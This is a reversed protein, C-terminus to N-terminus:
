RSWVQFGYNIEQGVGTIGSGTLAYMQGSPINTLSAYLQFGAAGDPSSIYIEKCKVDFAMSDEHSNLTIYHKGEYLNQSRDAFHVRIGTDPLSGSAIVTVTKTVYPFEIKMQQGSSLTSGTLYPHGSVQYSGVNRLGVGHGLTRIASNADTAM